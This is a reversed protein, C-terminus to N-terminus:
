EATAVKAPRGPKRKIDATLQEKAEEDHMQDAHSAFIHTQLEKTSQAEFGCGVCTHDKTEKSEYPLNGPYEIKLKKYSVPLAKGDGDVKIPSFQGLFLIAEDDEMEIYGGAEIHIKQDRFDEKYPYENLNRVKVKM